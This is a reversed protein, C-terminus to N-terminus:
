PFQGLILEEVLEERLPHPLGVAMFPRLDDGPEVTGKFAGEAHVADPVAAVLRQGYLFYARVYIMDHAFEARFLDIEPVFIEEEVYFFGPAHHGMDQLATVAKFPFGGRAHRVEIRDLEVVLQQRAHDPRAAHLDAEPHLAARLLREVGQALPLGHPELTRQAESDVAFAYSKECVEKFEPRTTTAKWLTKRSPLIVAGRGWTANGKKEKRAKEGAEIIKEFSWGQSQLEIVRLQWPEFVTEQESMAASIESVEKAEKQRDPLSTNVNRNRKELKVDKGGQGKPAKGLPKQARDNSPM